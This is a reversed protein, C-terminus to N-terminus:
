SREAPKACAFPWVTVPGSLRTKVLSLVGSFAPLPSSAGIPLLASATTPAILLNLTSYLLLSRLIPFYLRQTRDRRSGSQARSGFCRVVRFTQGWSRWVKGPRQFESAWHCVEPRRHLGRRTGAGTRIKETGTTACSFGSISMTMSPAACIGSRIRGKKIVTVITFIAARMIRM